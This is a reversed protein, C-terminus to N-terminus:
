HTEIDVDSFFNVPESALRQDIDIDVRCLRTRDVTSFTSNLLGEWDGGEGM